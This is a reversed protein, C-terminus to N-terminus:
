KAKVFTKLNLKKKTPACSAQRAYGSMDARVSAELVARKTGNLTRLCLKFSTPYTRLVHVFFQACMRGLVSDAGINQCPQNPLGNYNIVNVMMGSITSLYEAVHRDFQSKADGVPISEAEIVMFQFSLMLIKMCKSCVLMRRKKSHMSENNVVGYNNFADIIQKGLMAMTDPIWNVRAKLVNYIASLVSLIINYDGFDSLADYIYIASNRVLQANENSSNACLVEWISWQGSAAADTVFFLIDPPTLINRDLCLQILGIVADNISKDKSKKVCTMCSKLLAKITENEVLRTCEKKVIHTLSRINSSIITMTITDLNSGINEKQREEQMLILPKLLLILVCSNIEDIEQMADEVFHYSQVILLKTESYVASLNYRMGLGGGDSKTEGGQIHNTCNTTCPNTWPDLIIELVMRVTVNLTENTFFNKKVNRSIIKRLAMLCVSCDYEIKQFLPTDVATTMLSEVSTHFGILVIPALKEMWEVSQETNEDKVALAKSILISALGTFAVWNAAMEERVMVDVDDINPFSLGCSVKIELASDNKMNLLKLKFADIALAASTVGLKTEKDELENLLTDKAEQQLVDLEASNILNAIFSVKGVRPILVSTRNDIISKPKLNFRCGHVSSPYPCFVIDGEHPIISRFVRKLASNDGILGHKIVVAASRCGNMFLMRAGDAAITDDDKTSTSDCASLAHKVAPVIKSIFNMLVNEEAEPSPDDPDQVNAFQAILLCLLSLGSAQLTMLECQDITATCVGCAVHILDNLHLLIHSDQRGTAKNSQISIRARVTPLNMCEKIHEEERLSSCLHTISIIAIQIAILRLQWHLTNGFSSTVLQADYCANEVAKSVNAQWSNGNNSTDALTHEGMDGSLILMSFLVWNLIKNSDIKASNIGFQLVKSLCRTLKIDLVESDLTCKDSHLHYQRSGCVSEMLSLLPFELREDQMKCAIADNDMQVFREVFLVAAIQCELSARCCKHMSTPHFIHQWKQSFTIDNILHIVKDFLKAMRGQQLNSASQVDVHVCMKEYFSMGELLVSPHYESLEIMVNTMSIFRNVTSEGDILLHVQPVIFSMLRILAALLAPENAFKEM